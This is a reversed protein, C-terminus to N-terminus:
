AKNLTWKTTRKDHWGHVKKTWLVVCVCMWMWMFIYIYVCSYSCIFKSVLRGLDIFNVVGLSLKCTRRYKNPRGSVCVLQTNYM